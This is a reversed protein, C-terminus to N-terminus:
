CAFCIFLAASGPASSLTHSEANRGCETVAALLSPYNATAVPWHRDCTPAYVALLWQVYVSVTTNLYNVLWAVNTTDMHNTPEDLLLIDAHLLMARALALKMKWGGSLNTILRAMLEDTFGVSSLAGVVEEQLICFFM